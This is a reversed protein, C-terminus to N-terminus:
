TADQFKALRTEINIMRLLELVRDSAELITVRKTVVVATRPRVSSSVHCERRPSIM